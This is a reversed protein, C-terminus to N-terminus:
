QESEEQNLWNLYLLTADYEDEDLYSYSALFEEKTLIKFDAMKAVDTIFTKTLIKRDSIDFDGLCRPCIEYFMDYGEPRHQLVKLKYKHKCYPCKIKM